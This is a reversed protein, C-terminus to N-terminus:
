TVKFFSLLLFDIKHIKIHRKGGNTPKTIGTNIKILLLKTDSKIIKNKEETDIKESENKNKDDYKKSRTIIKDLLIFDADDTLPESKKNISNKIHDLEKNINSKDNDM